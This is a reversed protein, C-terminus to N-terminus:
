VQWIVVASIVAIAMWIEANHNEIFKLVIDELTRRKSLETNQPTEKPQTDM